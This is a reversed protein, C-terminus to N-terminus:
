QLRFSPTAPSRGLSARVCSRRWARAPGSSPWSSDQSCLRVRGPLISTCANSAGYRSKGIPARSTPDNFGEGPGDQNVITVTSARAAGPTAVFAALFLAAAARSSRHNSRITM